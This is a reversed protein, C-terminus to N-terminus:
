DESGDDEEDEDKEEESEKKVKAAAKKKRPAAKKRKSPPKLVGEAYAAFAKDRGDETPEFQVVPQDLDTPVLIWGDTGHYTSQQIRVGSEHIFLKDSDKEWAKPLKFKVADGRCNFWPPLIGHLGRRRSAEQHHTVISKLFLRARLRRSNVTKSVPCGGIEITDFWM